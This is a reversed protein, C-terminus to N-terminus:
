DEYRDFGDSETWTYGSDEYVSNEFTVAGDARVNRVRWVKVSSSLTEACVM